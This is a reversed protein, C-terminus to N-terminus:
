RATEQRGVVDTRLVPDTSSFSFPLPYSKIAFESGAALVTGGGMTLFERPNAQGNGDRDAGNVAEVNFDFRDTMQWTGQAEFGGGKGAVVTGSYTVHVEGFVGPATTGGQVVDIVFPVTEGPNAVARAQTAAFAPSDVPSMLSQPTFLGKSVEKPLSIDGGGALGGVVRHVVEELGGAALRHAPQQAAHPAAPQVDGVEPDVLGRAALAPRGLQHVLGLGVGALAAGMRCGEVGMGELGAGEVLAAAVLDEAREVGIGALM